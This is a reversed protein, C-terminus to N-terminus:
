RRASIARGRGARWWSQTGLETDLPDYFEGDLMKRRETKM